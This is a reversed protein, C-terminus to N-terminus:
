YIVNKLRLALVKLYYIYKQRFVLWNRMKPFLSEHWSKAEIKYAPNMCWVTSWKEDFVLAPWCSWNALGRNTSLAVDGILEISLILDPLNVKKALKARQSQKLVNLVTNRLLHTGVWKQTALVQTKTSHSHYIPRWSGFTSFWQNLLM